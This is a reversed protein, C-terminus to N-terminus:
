NSILDVPYWQLTKQEIRSAPRLRIAQGGGPALRILYNTKDNVLYREITIGYPHRVWDADDSDRYIEAVYTKNTPLFSFDTRLIRGNEDTMSGLFWEESNRKQRVVTIYDGIRAHLVRTTEWDTPVDRIFQFAQPFKEYNEPLDAAMQFPSYFVVYLALQKALTTSVRNKPRIKEYTLDFIGPTFDMPGALLRTFPLLVTHEPPNGGDVSWANYEQGRAGERSMMNPFTRRIGTAKIPEHAIIMIHHRAAEEVVKRYHRVMFQGHHWEHHQQGNKDIWIINKGHEVYGTKVVKVGLKEYFQFAQKMQREYAQVNGGTEHHGILYVGKKRAYETVERINFDPYPQIFNFHNGFGVWNENWGTNWGEILVGDFGYKAAFDIYKKANETTAGHHDGYAWSSLGLHMEWWIGVYKGPRIWSVDTLKSPENLNLILYNTILDGPADGIQLTRWPSQIPLTGRVKIGDYWPVLDAELTFADKHALTMSAFDTLAAEHIALVLGDRSELTLPTHVTDLQHLKNKKYLYEYRNWQYAPIWWADMDEALRFETLEDLIDIDSLGKQKPIVYRFGVGDDYVRFIIKLKKDPNKRGKLHVTMENFHNKIKRAEGWVQEWTERVTRKEITEIQFDHSMDVPQQLRFGLRSPLLITRGLRKLSYYPQGKKLLFQVELIESPSMVTQASLTSLFVLLLYVMGAKKAASV